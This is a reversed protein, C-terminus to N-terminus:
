YSQSWLYYLLTEISIGGLYMKTYRKETKSEKGDNSGSNARYYHHHVHISLGTPRPIKIGWYLLIPVSPTLLFKEPKCFTNISQSELYEGEDIYISYIKTRGKLNGKIYISPRWPSPAKRITIRRCRIWTSSDVLRFRYSRGRGQYAHSYICWPPRGCGASLSGGIQYREAAGGWSITHPIYVETFAPIHWVVSAIIWWDVREVAYFSFNSTAFDINGSMLPPTYCRISIM